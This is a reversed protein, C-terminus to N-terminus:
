TSTLTGDPVIGAAELVEWVMIKFADGRIEGADTVKAMIPLAQSANVVVVGGDVSVFTGSEDYGRVYEIRITLSMINNPDPRHIDVHTAHYRDVNKTETTETRVKVSENSPTNSQWGM